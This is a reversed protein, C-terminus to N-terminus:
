NSAVAAMLQPWKEAKQAAYNHHHFLNQEGEAGGDKREGLDVSDWVETAKGDDAGISGIESQSSSSHKRESM